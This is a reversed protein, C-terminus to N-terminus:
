NNNAVDTCSNLLNTVDAFLNDRCRASSAYGVSVGSPWGILRNDVVLVNTSSETLYIGSSDNLLMTQNGVRNGEVVAGPARALYIGHTQAANSDIGLTDIVDNDVVRVGSASALIGVGSYQSNGTLLVHNGRVVSGQGEVWIGGRWNEEARVGEVRHGFSTTSTSDSLHIGIGFGRVMGNRITINKRQSAYIGIKSSAQDLNGGGVKHGNLDLVVNNATIEIAYTPTFGASVTVDTMLCYVGQASITYTSTQSGPLSITNQCTQVQAAAPRSGVLCCVVVAMASASKSFSPKM